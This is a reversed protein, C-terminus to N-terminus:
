SAQQNRYRFFLTTLLLRKLLEGTDSVAERLAQGEDNLEYEHPEPAPSHIENLSQRNRSKM